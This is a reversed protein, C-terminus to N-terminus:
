QVTLVDSRPCIPGHVRQVTSMNSRQCMPGHIYRVTLVDARPCIPVHVRRVTSMDSRERPPGHAYRATPVDGSLWELCAQLPGTPMRKAPLLAESVLIDRGFPWFVLRTICPSMTHPCLPGQAYESQPCRPSHVRSRECMPSVRGNTTRTQYLDLCSLFVQRKDESLRICISRACARM